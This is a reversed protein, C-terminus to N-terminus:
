SAKMASDPLNCLWDAASALDSFVREPPPAPFTTPDYRCTHGTLVLLTHCGVAQGAQIDRPSDGVVYCQTLDLPYDQAAQLLLGPKPKRCDCGADPHHPCTYIATLHGGAARIRDKLARHIAELTEPSLHGRGVGAQNTFVFVQWGSATLRAVAETAGPLFRLSEPTTITEGTEATLVGDRDLFVVGAM